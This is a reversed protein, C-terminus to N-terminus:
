YVTYSRGTKVLKVRRPFANMELVKSMISKISESNTFMKMDDEPNDDKNLRIRLLGRDPGHSTKMGSIYDIVWFEKGVMDAQSVRKDGFYKDKAAPEIGLFALSGDDEKM